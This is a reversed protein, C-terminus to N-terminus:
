SIHRRRGRRALRRRLTQHAWGTVDIVIFTSIVSAGVIAAWQEGILDFYGLLAVGAPVFFFGLNDVLFGAVGSVRRIDLLRFHLAATLLLMGIISSPVPIGTLWVIFEGAALFSFLVALQVILM